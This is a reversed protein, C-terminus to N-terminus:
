QRLTALKMTVQQSSGELAAQENVGSDVLKARLHRVLLQLETLRALLQDRQVICLLSRPEPANIIPDRFLMTVLTNAISIVDVTKALGPNSLYASGAQNARTAVRKLSDLIICKMMMDFPDEPAEGYGLAFTCDLLLKLKQEDSTTDASSLDILCRIVLQQPWGNGEESGESTQTNSM